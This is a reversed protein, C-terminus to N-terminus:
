NCGHICDGINRLEIKNINEQRFLNVDFNGTLSFPNMYQFNKVILVFGMHNSYYVNVRTGMRLNDNAYISSLIYGPYSNTLDALFTNIPKNYYFPLNISSINAIPYAATDILNTISIQYKKYPLINKALVNHATAILVSIFLLKKM